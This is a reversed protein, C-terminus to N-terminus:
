PPTLELEDPVLRRLTVSLAGACIFLINETDVM